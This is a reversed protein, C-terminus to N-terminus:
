YKPFRDFSKDNLQTAASTRSATLGSRAAVSLQFTLLVAAPSAVSLMLRPPLQLPPNGSLPASANMTQLRGLPPLGVVFIRVLEAAFVNIAFLRLMVFVPLSSTKM